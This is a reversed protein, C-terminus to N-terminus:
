ALFFPEFLTQDSLHVLLDAHHHRYAALLKTFTLNLVAQAQRVDRFASGGSSQLSDLKAQLLQQLVKWPEDAQEKALFGYADSIQKQFRADPKGSGFNLYGIMGQLPAVRDLQAYREDVVGPGGLPIPTGTGSCHLM